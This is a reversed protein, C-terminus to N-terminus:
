REVLARAALRHPRVRRDVVALLLLDGVPYAVDTLLLAGPEATAGLLPEFLFVAAICAAALAAVVGDLWLRASAGRLRARVLLVIAVYSAPYFSLWLADSVGPGTTAASDPNISWHIEGASWALLGAGLFAWALRERRVLVARLVCLLAGALIVGNYVWASFFAGGRRRRRRAPERRVPGRARRRGGSRLARVAPPLQTGRHM